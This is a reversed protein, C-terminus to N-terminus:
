AATYQGRGVKKFKSRNKLLTANVITRFNAASSKYGAKQVADAAESVGLTKGKMVIALSEVLNKDNKPRRRGGAMGAGSAGGAGLSAGLASLQADLTALKAALKARKKQMTGVSRQRRRLESQLTNISISALSGAAPRRGM